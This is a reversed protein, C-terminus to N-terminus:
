AANRTELKPLLDIVDFGIWASLAALSTDVYANMEDHSLGDFAVSDRVTEYSETFPNLQESAYGCHRMLFDHLIEARPWEDTAECVKQLIAFYLRLQPWSRAKSRPVLDFAQGPRFRAMLEVDAPTLPSLGRRTLEVMPAPVATRKRRAAM